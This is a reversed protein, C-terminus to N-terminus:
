TSEHRSAAAVPKLIKSAIEFVNKSISQRDLLRQLASEMHGRRVPDYRRWSEFAGLLRAAVQPNLPDLDRVVDAALRYGDGNMAHFRVHNGQIFSGILARVRNPTKLDFSEHRMLARVRELTDPLRSLAQLSLWKNVVLDDDKWREYFAALAEGREPRDLDNLATLAAMADTMNDARTFHRMALEAVEDTGLTAVLVLARNRLARRGAQEAGPDHPEMIENQAYASLLEDKIAVALSQLSAHRAADIADPDVVDMAQALEIDGPLSLTQAVFSPDLTPDGLTRRLADEYSDSPLVPKGDQVAKVGRLIHREAYRRAAEWRNFPDSDCGILFLLGDDSLNDVLKTPASFGRLLSLVPPEGINRFVFTEEMNTLSLVEGSLREANAALELPLDNGDRGILGLRLPIHFPRKQAQEPTPRCSQRLRLTLTKAEVDHSTEAEIVPTGAQSYWLRFQDLSLGSANEM